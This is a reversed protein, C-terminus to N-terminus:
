WTLMRILSCLKRKKQKIKHVEGKPLPFSEKAELDFETSFADSIGVWKVAGNNAEIYIVNGVAVPIFSAVTSGVM